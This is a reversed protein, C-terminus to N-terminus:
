NARPTSQPLRWNDLSIEFHFQNSPHIGRMDVTVKDSDFTFLGYNNGIDDRAVGSTVIEIVGDRDCLDNKHIDGSIILAGSRNRLLSILRNFAQTHDREWNENNEISQGDIRHVTSSSVVILFKKKCTHINEELWLWQSEGLIGNRDSVNDSSKRRYFRTDLVILDLLETETQSYVENGTQPVSFARILEERAVIALDPDDNELVRNNGLFDHDNYIARLKANRRHIDDLLAKFHKEKKQESYLGRLKERLKNPDQINNDSVDLYVNDGHLLLIDPEFDRIEDWVPQERMWKIKACSAAAIKM